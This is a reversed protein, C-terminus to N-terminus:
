CDGTRKGGTGRRGGGPWRKSRSLQLSWRRGKRERLRKKGGPRLSSRPDGSCTGWRTQPPTGSPVEEAGPVEETRPASVENAMLIEGAREPPVEELPSVGAVRERSVDGRVPETGLLDDSPEPRSSAVKLENDKMADACFMTYLTKLLAPRHRGPRPKRDLCPVSRSTLVEMCWAIDETLCPRPSGM